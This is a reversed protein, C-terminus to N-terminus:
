YPDLTRVFGNIMILIPGSESFFLKTTFENLEIQLHKKKNKNKQTSKMVNEFKVCVIGAYPGTSFIVLIATFLTFYPSLSMNWVKNM